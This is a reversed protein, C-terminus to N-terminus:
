TKSDPIDGNEKATRVARKLNKQGSFAYKSKLGPNRDFQKQIHDVLWQQVFKEGNRHFSDPDKRYEKIAYLILKNLESKFHSGRLEIKTDPSKEYALRHMEKLLKSREKKNMVM